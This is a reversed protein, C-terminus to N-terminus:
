KNFAKKIETYSFPKYFSIIFLYLLISSIVIFLLFIIEGFYLSIFIENFYDKFFYIYIGLVFSALFILITPKLIKSSFIFYHNKQLVYQVEEYVKSNLTRDEEELPFIKESTFSNFSFFLLALFLFIKM